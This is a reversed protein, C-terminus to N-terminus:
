KFIPDMGASELADARTKMWEVKFEEGDLNKAEMTAWAEALIDQRKLLNNNHAEMEDTWVGVEKWYKVASLHYPVAWEFQQRDLAWGIMAPLADKYNDYESHVAKVMSYVLEPDQDARTILIPYPYAAGDMPTEKTINGTGLTITHPVIYPAVKQLRKWGEKDAAPTELWYIGKPTAELKKAPGTVTSGFASVIQGTEMAKWMAGYGGFEVVEVDDFTLGAFALYAETAITVAPSSRVVGVPKGKLEALSKVGSEVTAAQLLGANSTSTMLVQVKQPGWSPAAFNFVGESAYFTGAGNAVFQVKDSRLPGMRSIDNKGPVVRLDVGYKDKLAKGIAVSQNYGTTGTNYASWAITSPLKVDDAFAATSFTFAAATAAACLGLKIRM